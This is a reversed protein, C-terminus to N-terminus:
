VVTWVPEDREPAAAAARRLAAFPIIVATEAPDGAAPAAVPPAPMRAVNDGAPEAEDLEVSKLRGVLSPYHRGAVLAPNRVLRRQGGEEVEFRVLDGATLAPAAGPHTYADYYALDGHDECWIVAKSEADDSWLVVGFM